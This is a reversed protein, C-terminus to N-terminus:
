SVVDVQTDIKIEISTDNSSYEYTNFEEASDTQTLTADADTFDLSSGADGEITISDDKSAELLDDLSIDTVDKDSIDISDVEVGGMQDVVLAFDVDNDLKSFDLILEEPNMTLTDEASPTVERTNTFTEEVTRIDEFEVVVERTDEFEQTEIRTNTFTEEVMKTDEFEVEVERTNTFSEEVVRTDEFEVIVDRTDEFEVTRTRTDQFEVTVERTDTFTEEYINDDVVYTETEYVIQDPLATVTLTRTDEFEVTVERTNTFTESEVRTDDFTAVVDRTDEFEEQEVRTNTFTETTTKIWVGDVLDYGAEVMSTLDVTTTARTGIEDEGDVMRTNQFEETVVKTNTFTETVDKTNTFTEQEVRTNTFTEEVDRTDEFEVTVDRTDEFEVTVVRTDEFEVEVERTDTFTEEYINDDTVYTETEYIIQDAQATLTVVRTDEFEVIIEKTNIFTETEDRTNTFTEEVVRTDEFEQVETRTNTFSETTNKVWVGDVLDYGAEVMLTTDVTTTARIGIEDEGDVMRTNQFEETEIRTNTFTETVEKTNTFTEQEVRTNTFTEEVMRTDEFEVSVVRTDLFEVEVDRTDTFIEEYINDDVVYTETEYVIQKPTAEVLVTRTDEFEVTIVRTDEFEQTETRTNTFSETTTKVWVGDVLEYGAESMATTDVTTTVRTGISDEGDVMRTNQFEETVVKTNTFTEVEERTNTFTEPVMRTDEFEQTEVRTNTFTEEVERTDEFEVSVVRTDEFEVEVERTDTFTEEYPEGPITYTETAYIIQESEVTTTVVRTDQFEVEVERTNTFTETVTRTDPFDVAVEKQATVSVDGIKFEQSNDGSGDGEGTHFIKISDFTHASTVELNVDKNDKLGQEKYITDVDIRDVEEGDKYLIIEGEDHKVKYSKIELDVSKTDDLDYQLFDGSQNLNADGDSYTTTVDQLEVKTNTFSEVVDRTDEFEQTEIRTNTFEETTSTEWHGETTQVWSGDVLEYGAESMAEVDVVQTLEVQAMGDVLSNLDNVSEAYVTTNSISSIDTHTAYDSNSIEPPQALGAAYDLDHLDDVNIGITYMADMNEAIFEKWEPLYDLFDDEYASYSNGDGMQILVNQDAEPASAFTNEALRMGQEPDTGSKNTYLTNDANLTTGDVWGSSEADNGWFQVINVNVGGLAEYQSVIKNIASESLSLDTDSMSSSVDMVFTLNTTATQPAGDTYILDAPTTGGEVYHYGAQTMATTDITTTVRSGVTDEGVVTRTNEFEQTEIRTNTFTETVDKTNTFTEEVMRTDEFEVDVDKTNTFTEEVMRTDEFEVTVLRTDEFEVEVERTDTFTEEYVNDDTVYTEREYIIQDDQATTTIVRTDEFEVTVDKTNTFTETEERTNTFTEQIEKYWGDSVGNVIINDILAGLSDSTGESSIIINTNDFSATDVTISYNNWGNEGAVVVVGASATGDHSIIYTDGNITISMDSTESEIRAQYDLSITFDDVKSTDFDKSLATNKHADLEALQTGDTATAVLNSDQVEIGNTEDWDKDDVVSWSGNYNNDEFSETFNLTSHTYGDEVMASENVTTTDRTGLIDEGDVTRTNEFEETEIRTNTFTEEVNKTNTFTEEVMRTDEFEVTVDRTDEFEVTVIRTDEFEVEVDRTDTFTEEYINDDTVYTETEYVIQDPQATITVDRTDEFEVLVDRTNTFTETVERTDDFEVTVVRTDEFEQTETRTNTFTETVDKVWEGDVFNYGAESMSTLDVTTTARTGIEDEGDITRTNQFEETEIRTNTFTQSEERTNTFTEQEVRTNTFTEEVTRTDEFEVTVDRTDEFEVEVVRSDQFEVEVERTDTFTEEYINDDVVYTETEYIIQDPQATITIDRTDEFEVLVDKTNTFTETEVRTNEFEVVVDRTDEFEQTEVKTNTFTETTTKVWSGDVLEYGSNTMATTDVTTTTRTGISDEADVTRTNQFEETEIRTNTFIETEERTNTFTETEVRTNTFTEPVERTDQFEQTEVKTNTFVEQVERTDEFAVEVDKTNTFTEEEVRTNTFTEEVMRTDEFEETIVENSSETRYDLQIGPQTPEVIQTDARFPADRLDSVIDTERGDRERFEDEGGESTKPVETGSATEDTNIFEEANGSEDLDEDAYLDGNLADNVSDLALADDFNSDDTLSSDFLQEELGSLMIDEVGNEMAINIADSELNGKDGFVVMGETIVDGEKLEVVNGDTDKAFFKGDLDKVTGIITAM